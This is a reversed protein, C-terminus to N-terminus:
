ITYLYKNKTMIHVKGDEAQFHITRGYRDGVDEGALPLQLEELMHYASKTNARGIDTVIEDPFQFLTAGGVLKVILNEHYCGEHLMRTYLQQFANDIYKLDKEDSQKAKPLLSQIFGGMHNVTDYICIGIGSGIAYATIVDDCHAIVLEAPHAIREKM